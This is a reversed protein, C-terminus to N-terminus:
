LSVLEEKIDYVDISSDISSVALRTGEHNLKTSVVGLTHGDRSFIPNALDFKVDKLEWIKISEDGFGM